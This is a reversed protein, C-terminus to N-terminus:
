GRRRPWYPSAKRKANLKQIHRKITAIQSPNPDDITEGAIERALKTVNPEFVLMGDDDRVSNGHKDTKIMHDLRDIIGMAALKQMRRDSPPTGWRAFVQRAQADGVSERIELFLALAKAQAAELPPTLQAQIRDQISPPRKM